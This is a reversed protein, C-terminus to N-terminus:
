FTVSERLSRRPQAKLKNRKDTLVPTKGGM